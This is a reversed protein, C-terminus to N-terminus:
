HIEDQFKVTAGDGSVYKVICPNSGKRFDGFKMYHREHNGIDNLSTYLGVIKEM